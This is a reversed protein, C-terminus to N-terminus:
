KLNFFIKSFILKQPNFIMINLKKKHTYIKHSNELVWDFKKYFKVMYKYCHLISIYKHKKIIKNNFSMIIEGFTKNGIKGGRYKKDLVLTDFYFYKKNKKTKNTLILIRKRLLTYGILKNNLFLMNHIDNPQVNKKVWKKQLNLSYKWEQSKLKIIDEILCHPINKNKISKLNLKM